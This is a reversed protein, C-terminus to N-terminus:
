AGERDDKLCATGERLTPQAGDHDHTRIQGQNLNEDWDSREMWKEVWKECYPLSKGVISGILFGYILTGVNVPGGLSWGIVLVIGEMIRRVIALKRGTKEVLYLMLSDRPGAGRHASIYVSTGIGNVLIGILLMLGRGFLTQPTGFHNLFFDIFIGVLIMNAVAGAKPWTKTLLSTSGVILIGIIISWTGVTLGFHRFLGINLVDWPASGLNARIMLAIGFSMIWLGVLFVAWSLVVFRIRQTITL